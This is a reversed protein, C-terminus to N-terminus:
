LLTMYYHLQIVICYYHLQVREVQFTISVVLPLLNKYPKITGLEKIMVRHTKKDNRHLLNM